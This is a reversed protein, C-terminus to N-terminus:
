MADETMIKIAFISSHAYAPRLLSEYMFTIYMYWQYILDLNSWLVGYRRNHLTMAKVLRPEIDPISMAFSEPKLYKFHM